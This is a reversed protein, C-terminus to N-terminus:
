RPALGIRRAVYLQFDQWRLLRQLSFGLLLQTDLDISSAQADPRTDPAAPTRTQPHANMAIDSLNHSALRRVRPGNKVPDPSAKRSAM